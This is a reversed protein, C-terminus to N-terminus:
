FLQPQWVTGVAAYDTSPSQKVLDYGQSETRTWMPPDRRVPRLHLRVARLVGAENPEWCNLTYKLTTRQRVALWIQFPIAGVVTLGTLVATVYHNRKGIAGSIGQPTRTFGGRQRMVMKKHQITMKGCHSYWKPSPALLGWEDPGLDVMNDPVIQYASGPGELPMKWAFLSEDNKAILADQLRLFAGKGEGYQVPLHLNFIGYLSYAIDEERTTERNAAWSMKAAICAVRFDEQGTLYHASIGTVDEIAEALDEKSGLYNWDADYFLLKRPALLEQLTWGRTFWKSMDGTEFSRFVQSGVKSELTKRVDSLYTLCVVAESYWKFMSNISESLESSDSKNICCNDIWMWQLGQKRATICAGLIKDLQPLAHRQKTHRLEQAFLGIQSFLIEDAGWRHSLIAYGQEKFNIHTGTHLEFTSTNMCRMLAM